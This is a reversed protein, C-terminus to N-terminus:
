SIELFLLVCCNNFSPFWSLKSWNLSDLSCFELCKKFKLSFSLKFYWISHKMNTVLIGISLFSVNFQMKFSKHMRYCENHWQGEGGMLTKDQKAHKPVSQHCRIAEEILINKSNKVFLQKQTEKVKMLRKM